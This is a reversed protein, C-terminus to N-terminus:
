SRWNNFKIFEEPDVGDESYVAYQQKMWEPVTFNYLDFKNKGAYARRKMKHSKQRYFNVHPRRKGSVIGKIACQLDEVQMQEEIKIKQIASPMDLEMSNQPGDNIEIQNTQSNPCHYVQQLPFLFQNTPCELSINNNTQSGQFFLPSQLNQALGFQTNALISQSRCFQFAIHQFHSSRSRFVNM